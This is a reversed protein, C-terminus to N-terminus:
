DLKGDSTFDYDNARITEEISEKSTLYECEKRLMHLYDELLDKLFDNEKQEKEDELEWSLGDESNELEYWKRLMSLYQLATQYTACKEGHNAIIKESVRLPELTFKGEVTRHYIDFGEIQLGITEADEYIYDWWDHGVNLDCLHNLAKEKQDDTLEDYKYVQYTRTEM